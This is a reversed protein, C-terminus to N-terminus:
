RLIKELTGLLQKVQAYDKKMQDSPMQVSSFLALESSYYIKKIIEADDVSLGRSQLEIVIESGVSAQSLNLKDSIYQSLGRSLSDYFEKSDKKKLASEAQKFLEKSNDLARRNRAYSHDTQFKERRFQWAFLCAFLCGPM